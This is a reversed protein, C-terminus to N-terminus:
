SQRRTEKVCILFVPNNQLFFISDHRAEPKIENKEGTNFQNEPSKLFLGDFTVKENEDEIRAVQHDLIKRWSNHGKINEGDVRKFGDADLSSPTKHKPELVHVIPPGTDTEVIRLKVSSHNKVMGKGNIKNYLRNLSVKGGLM